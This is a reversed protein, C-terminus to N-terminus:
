RAINKKITEVVRLQAMAKSLEVMAADFDFDQGADAILAEARKKAENAADEDIEDARLVVDALVAVSTHQVELMGGSLYFVEEEGDQKVIRAMGPKITTLLPAHGPKIGLEGETGTVELLSVRGNFIRKEASVIDLHVTMAAM